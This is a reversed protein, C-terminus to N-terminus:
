NKRCDKKKTLFYIPVLIIILILLILTAIVKEDINSEEKSNDSSDTNSNSNEDKNDNELSSSNNDDSQLPPLNGELNTKHTINFYSGTKDEYDELSYKRILNEIIEKRSDNFGSVVGDGIVTFPVGKNENGYFARVKELHEKNQSNGWTEYKYIKLNTYRKELEALFEKEKECHPCGDGWFLYLNVENLAFVKAPCLFCIFLIFVLFLSKFFKM